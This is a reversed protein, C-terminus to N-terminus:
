EFSLKSLPQSPVKQTSTTKRKKWLGVDFHSPSTREEPLPSTSVEQLGELDSVRELATKARESEANAKIKEADLKDNLIRSEEELEVITNKLKKIERKMEEIANHQDLFTNKVNNRFALLTTNKFRELAYLIKADDSFLTDAHNEIQELLELVADFYERIIYNIDPKAHEINKEVALWLSVCIGLDNLAANKCDESLNLRLLIIIMCYLIHKKEKEQEKTLCNYFAQFMIFLDKSLVKSDNDIDHFILRCLASSLAETQSWTLTSQPLYLNTLLRQFVPFDREWFAFSLCNYVDEKQINEQRLVCLMEFFHVMCGVSPKLGHVRLGFSRLIHIGKRTNFLEFENEFCDNVIADQGSLCALEFPTKNNRNRGFSNVGRSRFYRVIDLHGFACALHMPTNRSKTKYELANVEMKTKECLFQVLPLDGQQVAIHLATWRESSFINVNIGEEICARVDEVNGARCADFFRIDLPVKKPRKQKSEQGSLTKKDHAM